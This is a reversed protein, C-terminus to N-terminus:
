PNILTAHQPRKFSHHFYRAHTGNQSKKTKKFDRKKKPMDPCGSVRDTKKVGSLNVPSVRFFFRDRGCLPSARADPLKTPLPQDDCGDECVCSSRAVRPADRHHSTICGFYYFTQRTPAISTCVKQQNKPNRRARQLRQRPPQQKRERARASRRPPLPMLRPAAARKGWGAGYM